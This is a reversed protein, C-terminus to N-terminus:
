IVQLPLSILKPIMAQESTSVLKLFNKSIKFNTFTPPFLMLVKSYGKMMVPCSLFFDKGILGIGM